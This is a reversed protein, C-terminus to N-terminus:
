DDEEILWDIDSVRVAAARNAVSDSSALIDVGEKSKEELLERFVCLLVEMNGSFRISTMVNGDESGFDQRVLLAVNVQLGDENAVTESITQGLVLVVLRHCATLTSVWSNKVIAFALSHLVSKGAALRENLVAIVALTDPRAYGCTDVAVICHNAWVL